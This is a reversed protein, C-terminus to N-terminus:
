WPFIGEMIQLAILRLNQRFLKQDIFQGRVWQWKGLKAVMVEQRTPQLEGKVSNGEEVGPDRGYGGPLADLWSM